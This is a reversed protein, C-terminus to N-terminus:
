HNVWSRIEAIVDSAILGREGGQAAKDGARGHVQVGAVAASEASLKQARLGAIIGTLADGMGGSAMGPNGASCLWPPGSESSVLTGAGKLVVTGGFKGVLANLAAPRDAQVDAASKGLLTGAEGPHPTLITDDHGCGVETLLNLADADVVVSKGSRLVTSLLAQAWEDRGLGPGVAVVTARDLLPVLDESRNVGHCMLEPRGASLQCSHDPHTAVSVLGAGARLAAEGCLRVAGAMGPAGGVILVHGYSGKHASLNRRPLAQRIVSDDIRRFVATEGALCRGPIDLGDFLRKGALEAGAGLFLGSKLGVFAITVDAQVAVGMVKGTDGHLGSPMDLALVPASHANIQEVVAAFAGEVDREIGSGLLGDILLDADADLAGEGVMAVGGQAAFDAYATAADGTLDDPSSMALVSVALGEKAALRAVVYGDGGNNGSGCVVQWRRANPFHTRAAAVAAAGARTMLSYGSIGEGDIAARDINRVSEVSYIEGPLCM